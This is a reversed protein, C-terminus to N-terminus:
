EQTFRRMPAVEAAYRAIERDRRARDWGLLGAMVDAVDPARELAQGARLGADSRRLLVDGVTRAWEDRVARAIASPGLDPDPAPMGGRAGPLLERDTSSRVTVDLAQCVRDVVDEAIARYATIKGGVVSLIGAAGDRRHDYLAHKRSVRSASVGDTRVLARVGAWTYLVRDVPADPFARAAETRLYRVDAADAAAATPDGAYDTDTTGVITYDLWPIVFFLRGDTKAFLVHAQRTARPVVLHVGKTLRLLPPRGPRLGHANVLDLWPGTANVTFRSRVESESGDLEDRLRGGTVAGSADRIFGVVRTHTRVEAGHAAADVANEVVLREILPVQADYFRWAGRLGRPDLAPEAAITEARSVWRRKPLSKDLSLLDYLYMGARLKARYLPGPDYMPLLFPLPRVLHPAIRLLIERERMDSRVLGFDFQELYRLGGHILRTPRSSTGSALDQQEALVVSLGRLAADRAIGAGIVGGGIVLLDAARGDASRAAM